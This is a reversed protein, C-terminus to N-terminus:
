RTTARMHCYVIGYRKYMKTCEGTFSVEDGVKVRAKKVGFENSRLIVIVKESCSIRALYNENAGEGGTQQLKLIKGRGTLLRRVVNQKYFDELEGQTMAVVKSALICIDNRAFAPQVMLLSLTACAAVLIYKM